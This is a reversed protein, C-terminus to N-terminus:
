QTDMPQEEVGADVSRLGETIVRDVQVSDEEFKKLKERMTTVLEKHAAKEQVMFQRFLQLYEVEQQICQVRKVSLEHRRKPMDAIEKVLKQIDKGQLSMLIESNKAMDKMRKELEPLKDVAIQKQRQEELNAEAKEIEEQLKKIHVSNVGDVINFWDHQVYFSDQQCVSYLKRGLVSPDLEEIAKAKREDNERLVSMKADLEETLARIDDQLHKIALQKASEKLHRVDQCDTESPIIAGLPADLWGEDVDVFVPDFSEAPTFSAALASGVSEEMTEDGDETDDEATLRNAVPTKAAAIAAAFSKIQRSTASDELITTGDMNILMDPTQVKSIHQSDDAFTYESQQMSIDMKQPDGTPFVIVSNHTSEAFSSADLLMSGPYSPECVNRNASLMLTESPKLAGHDTMTLNTLVSVDPYKRSLDMSRRLRNRVMSPRKAASDPGGYPLSLADESQAASENRLVTFTSDVNAIKPHMPTSTCLPIKTNFNATMNQLTYNGDEGKPGCTFTKENDLGDSRRAQFAGMTANADAMEKTAATPQEQFANFTESKPDCSFTKETDLGVSRRTQFAAMTSNADATDKTATSPQEQFVSFTESVTGVPKENWNRTCKVNGVEQVSCRCSVMGYGQAGVGADVSRLGDTIVQDVRVSDERFKKLKERITKVLEKHAAKEQVMFQRFNRLYQIEEKLCQIRKVSLEHRDTPQEQFVSFTESKPDCSFTKETDLGDSQRAQFAGMTDNADATEKTATTPGEEFVDTGDTSAEEATLDLYGKSRNESNISATGEPTLNMDQEISAEAIGPGSPHYERHDVIVIWQKRRRFLHFYTMSSCPIRPLVSLTRAIWRACDLM